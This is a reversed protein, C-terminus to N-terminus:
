GIGIVHHGPPVAAPVDFPKGPGAQTRRLLLRHDAGPGGVDDGAPEASETQDDGSPQDVRAGAPDHEVAAVYRRVLRGEGFEAVLRFDGDDGAIDRIGPRGLSQDGGGLLGSALQAADHVSGRHDLVAQQGRHALVVQLPHPRGLRDPRHSQM